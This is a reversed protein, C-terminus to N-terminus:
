LKSVVFIVLTEALAIIALGIVAGLIGHRASAAKQADGGSTIYLFGSVMIVIVAAIGAIVAIILSVKRLIGNPGTIPDATGASCTASTKAGGGSDCTDGLPNYSSAYASVPLFLCFLTTALVILRKM